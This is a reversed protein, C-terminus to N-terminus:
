MTLKRADVKKGPTWHVNELLDKPGPFYVDKQHLTTIKLIVGYIGFLVSSLKVFTFIAYPEIDYRSCLWVYGYTNVKKYVCVENEHGETGHDVGGRRQRRKAATV